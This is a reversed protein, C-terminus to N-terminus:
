SGPIAEVDLCWLFGSVSLIDAEGRSIIMQTTEMIAVAIMILNLRVVECDRRRGGLGGWLGM